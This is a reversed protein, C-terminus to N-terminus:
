KTLIPIERKLVSLDINIESCINELVNLIKQQGDVPTHNPQAIVATAYGFVKNQLNVWHPSLGLKKSLRITEFLVRLPEIAANNNIFDAFLLELRENAKAELLDKDLTVEWKIVEDALEDFKELTFNGNSLLEKLEINIVVNINQKLVEPLKLQEIKMVNLINYNRDYIRRYSDYALDESVELYQNLLKMQEDKFMGFFSFNHAKFREQILVMVQSINSKEFAKALEKEIPEFESKSLRDCTGGILHHQGIYLVVFSFQKKSLTVKSNVETTGFALKQMGASKREYWLSKCDYNFVTLTQPDDAFLSAVAYHM